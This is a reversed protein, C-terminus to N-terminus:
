RACWGGTMAPPSRDPSVGCTAARSPFRNDLLEDLQQPYQAVGPSSRYYSRLAQAYQGGGM